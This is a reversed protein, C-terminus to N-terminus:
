MGKVEYRLFSDFELKNKASHKCDICRMAKEDINRSSCEPCELIIELDEKDSGKVVNIIVKGQFGEEGNDRSSYKQPNIKELRWQLAGMGTGRSEATKTAEDHRKLLNIELIAYHRHLKRQFYEDEMLQDEEEETMESALCAEHFGVGLDLHEELWMLKTDYDM